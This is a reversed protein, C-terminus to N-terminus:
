IQLKYIPVPYKLWVAIRVASQFKEAEVACKFGDSKLWVAIRVASQFEAIIGMELHDEVVEVLCRDARRISVSFHCGAFIRIIDKLWVAIRVASQFKACTTLKPSTAVPKLWVAIRVASQFKRSPEPLAM